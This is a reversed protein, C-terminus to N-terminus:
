GVGFKMGERERAYLAKMKGVHPILMQLAFM